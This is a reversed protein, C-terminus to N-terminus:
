PRQHRSLAPGRRPDPIDDHVAPRSSAMQAMRGPGGRSFCRNRPPPDHVLGPGPACDHPTPRTLIGIGWQLFHLDVPPSPKRFVARRRCPISTPSNAAASLAAACGPVGPEHGDILRISEAFREALGNDPPNAQDKCQQRQGPDDMTEMGPIPTTSIRRVVVAFGDTLHFFQVPPTLQRVFFDSGDLALEGPPLVPSGTRAAWMAARPPCPRIVNLSHQCAPRVRLAGRFRDGNMVVIWSDIERPRLM